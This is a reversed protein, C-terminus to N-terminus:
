YPIELFEIIYKKPIKITRGIRVYKIRRQRLLKYASKKGIKLMQCMEYVDVVDTFKDFM